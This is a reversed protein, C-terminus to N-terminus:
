DVVSGASDFTVLEIAVDLRRAAERALDVSVGRPEGDAGRNALIPNGFNIAARLTGGTGLEARASARDLATVCGALPALAGAACIRRRAIFSRLLHRRHAHDAQLMARNDGHRAAERSATWCRMGRSAPRSTSANCDTCRSRSCRASRFRSTPM